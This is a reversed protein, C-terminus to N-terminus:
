PKDISSLKKFIYGQVLSAAVPFLLTVGYIAYFGWFRYISYSNKELLLNIVLYDLLFFPVVTSIGRVINAAIGDTKLRIWRFILMALTIILLTAYLYIDRENRGGSIVIEGLVFIVAWMIIGDMIFRFINSGKFKIVTATSKALYEKSKQAVASTDPLTAKKIDM